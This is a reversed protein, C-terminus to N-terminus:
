LVRWSNIALQGNSPRYEAVVRITTTSTGDTASSELLLTTAAQSTPIEIVFGIAAASVGGELSGLVAGGRLVAAKQAPITGFSLHSNPAWTLGQIAFEKQAGNNASFLAGGTPSSDPLAHVGVWYQGQQRRSVEFSGNAQTQIASNGSMYLTAGTPEDNMRVADCATNEAAPFGEFDVIHGMTVSQQKIETKGINQFLYNGSRFYNNKALRDGLNGTYRGPQFVRCSGVDEHAPNVNNPVPGVPPPVAFLESWTRNVCYTGRSTPDFNLNGVSVDSRAFTTGSGSGCSSSYYWLDGEVITTAQSFSVAGLSHVYVPGGINPKGGLTFQLSGGGPGQGTIVLAWGDSPPVSGGIIRCTVSASAGNIEEPFAMSVGSGGASTTCIPVQLRLKELADDMAGEAAALTNARSEAVGGYRIVATTYTATAMVVASLVFVIVLVMPLVGGRDRRPARHPRTEIM